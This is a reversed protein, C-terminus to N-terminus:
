QKPMQHSSALSFPQCGQSAPRNSSRVHTHFVDRDTLLLNTTVLLEMVNAPKEIICVVGLESVKNNFSARAILPCSAMLVAKFNPYERQLERVLCLGDFKPTAIDCILLDPRAERYLAGAEADDQAVLIGYGSDRLGELMLEVIMSGDDIVLVIGNNPNEVSLSSLESKRFVRDLGSM